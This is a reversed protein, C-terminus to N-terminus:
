TQGLAQYCCGLEDRTVAADREEGKLNERIKLAKELNEIAEEYRGLTKLAAGLGNYAIGVPVSKKNHTKLRCDLVEKYLKM